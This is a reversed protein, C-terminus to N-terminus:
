FRRVVITTEAEANSDWRDKAVELSRLDNMLEVAKLNDVGLGLLKKIVTKPRLLGLRRKLEVENAGLKDLSIKLHMRCEYSKVRKSVSGKSGVADLVFNDVGIQTILYKGAEVSSHPPMVYMCNTENQLNKLLEVEDHLVLAPKVQYLYCEKLWQTLNEKVLSVGQNTLYFLTGPRRDGVTSLEVINILGNKSMNEVAQTFYDRRSSLVVYGEKYGRLLLFVGPRNVNM